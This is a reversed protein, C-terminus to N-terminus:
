HNTSQENKHSNSPEPNILRQLDRTHKNQHTTIKYWASATKSMDEGDIRGPYYGQQQLRRQQSRTNDELIV